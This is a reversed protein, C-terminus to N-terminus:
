TSNDYPMGKDMRDIDEYYASQGQGCYRITATMPFDAAMNENLAVGVQHVLFPTCLILHVYSDKKKKSIILYRTVTQGADNKFYLIVSINGPNCDLDRVFDYSNPAIYDGQLNYNIILSFKYVKTYNNYYGTTSSDLIVLDKFLHTGSPPLMKEDKLLGFTSKGEFSSTSYENYLSVECNDSNWIIESAAEVYPQISKDSRKELHLFGDTRIVGNSVIRINMSITSAIDLFSGAPYYRL